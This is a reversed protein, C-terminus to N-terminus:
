GFVDEVREAVVADDLWRDLTAVDSAGLVLARQAESV